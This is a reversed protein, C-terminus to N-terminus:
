AADRPHLRVVLVSCHALHVVAEAVSGLLVRRLGTRGSTGVVLLEADVEEAVRVLAAAAPGREVRGQGEIELTALIEDLRGSATREAELVAEIPWPTMSATAPMLPDVPIMPLEVSHVISLTGGMRQVEAAAAAVAPLAPDSFDTGAVVQKTKRHRRAVLVPCHAHRAVRLAVSGLLMRPIAGAGLSGVVIRDAGWTEATGVIVAHPAGGEVFVKCSDPDRGTVDHIKSKVAEVATGYTSPVQFAEIRSREPFLPHSLIETPVVHCVGLEGHVERAYEHARLLADDAHLSLDTAALVKPRRSM